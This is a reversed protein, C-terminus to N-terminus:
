VIQDVLKGPTKTSHDDTPVPQTLLRRARQLGQALLQTEAAFPQPLELLLREGPQAM